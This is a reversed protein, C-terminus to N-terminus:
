KSAKVDDLTVTIKNGWENSIFNTVDVIEQDTLTVAAMTAGMINGPYEVGNVTIPGESGKLVTKILTEKDIETLFDSGNLPPYTGELGEGQAMHCTHCLGKGEYIAKGASFDVVSEDTETDNETIVETDNIDADDNDSNTDEDGCSTLVSFSFFASIIM